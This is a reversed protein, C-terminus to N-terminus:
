ITKCAANTCPGPHSLICRYTDPKWTEIFNKSDDSMTRTFHHRPLFLMDFSLSFFVFTLKFTFIFDYEISYCFITSQSARSLSLFHLAFPDSCNLLKCKNLEDLTYKVLHLLQRLQVTSHVSVSLTRCFSPFNM